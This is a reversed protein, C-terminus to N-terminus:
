YISLCMDHIQIKFAFLFNDVIHENLIKLLLKKLFQHTKRYLDDPGFM